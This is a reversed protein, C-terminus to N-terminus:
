HRLARSQGICVKGYQAGADLLAVRDVQVKALDVDSVSVKKTVPSADLHEGSSGESGLDGSRVRKRTALSSNQGDRADKGPGAVEM